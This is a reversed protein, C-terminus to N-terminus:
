KPSESVKLGIKGPRQGRPNEPPFPGRPFTAQERQYVVGPLFTGGNASARPRRQCGPAKVEHDCWIARLGFFLFGSSSIHSAGLLYVFMMVDITLPEDVGTSTCSGAGDMECVNTSPLARAHRLDFGPGTRSVAKGRKVPRM